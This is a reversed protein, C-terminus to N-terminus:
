NETEKYPMPIAVALIKNTWGYLHGHSDGILCYGSAKNVNWVMHTNWHGDLCNFVADGMNPIEGRLPILRAYQGSVLIPQMSDGFEYRCVMEGNDLAKVVEDIDQVVRIGGELHTPHNVIEIDKM